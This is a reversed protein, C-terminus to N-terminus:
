VSEGTIIKVKPHLTEWIDSIIQQTRVYSVPVEEIHVDIHDGLGAAALGKLFYFM